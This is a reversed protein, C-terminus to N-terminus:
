TTSRERQPPAMEDPATEYRAIKAPQGRLNSANPAFHPTSNTKLSCYVAQMQRSPEVGLTTALLDRCRRYADVAEAIRGQARYSLLLRLHFEEALPDIEIARRYLDIAEHWSG